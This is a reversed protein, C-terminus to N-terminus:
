IADNGQYGIFETTHKTGADNIKRQAQVEHPDLGALDRDPHSCAQLHKRWFPLGDLAGRYAEPGIGSVQPAIIEFAVEPLGVCGTHDRDLVRNEGPVPPESQDQQRRASGRPYALPRPHDLNAIGVVVPREFGAFNKGKRRRQCYGAEDIVLVSPHTYMPMATRLRGDRSAASLHDILHAATTFYAEAGNQIARYAIAVSLHTKGRGPDGYLILSRDELVFEPGLYSGLLSQRVSSQFTFDFEEITRLPEALGRGMGAQLIEEPNPSM